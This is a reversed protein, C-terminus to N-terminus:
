SSVAPGAPEGVSCELTWVRGSWLWVEGTALLARVGFADVGLVRADGPIPQPISGHRNDESLDVWVLRRDSSVGWARLLTVDMSRSARGFGALTLLSKEFEDLVKVERRRFHGRPGRDHAIALRLEPSAFMAATPAWQPARRAGDARFITGDSMTAYVNRGIDDFGLVEAAGPLPSLLGGARKRASIPRRDRVLWAVREIASSRPGFSTETFGGAVSM